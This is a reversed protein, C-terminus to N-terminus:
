PEEKRRFYGVAFRYAGYLFIVIGILFRFEEPVNQPVLLGLMVAIGALMAGTSLVLIILRLGGALDMHSRDSLGPFSFPLCFTGDKGRTRFLEIRDLEAGEGRGCM